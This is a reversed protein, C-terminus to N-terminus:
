LSMPEGQSGSTDMTSAEEQPSPQMSRESRTERTASSPRWFSRQRNERSSSSATLWRVSASEAGAQSPRSGGGPKSGDSLPGLVNKFTGLSTHDSPQCRTPELCHFM